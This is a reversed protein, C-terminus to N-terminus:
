MARSGFNDASLLDSRKKASGTERELTTKEEGRKADHNIDLEYALFTDCLKKVRHCWGKNGTVRDSLNAAKCGSISTVSNRGILGVSHMERVSKNRGLARNVGDRKVLRGEVCKQHQEQQDAYSNSGRFWNKVIDTHHKHAETRKSEKDFVNTGVRDNREAKGFVLENSASHDDKSSYTKM